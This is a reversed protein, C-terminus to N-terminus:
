SLIEEPRRHILLLRQFQQDIEVVCQRLQENEIM